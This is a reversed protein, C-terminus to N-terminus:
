KSQNALSQNHQGNAMFHQQGNIAGQTLQPPGSQRISRATPNCNFGSQSVHHMQSQITSIRASGLFALPYTRTVSSQLNKGSM